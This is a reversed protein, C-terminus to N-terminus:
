VTTEEHNYLHLKKGLIVSEKGDKYYSNNKTEFEPFRTAANQKSFIPPNKIVLGKYEIAIKKDCKQGKDQCFYIKGEYSGPVFSSFRVEGIKM